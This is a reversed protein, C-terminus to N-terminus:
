TTSSARRTKRGNIKTRYNKVLLDEDWGLYFNWDPHLVVIPLKKRKAAMEYYNPKKPFNRPKVNKRHSKRINCSHCAAVINDWATKGGHFRPVVHDLTLDDSDIKKLCYQCRSQDRLLVNQRSFKIHREKNIWRRSQMVAPVNLEISPSRIIWHEYEHLVDVRDKWMLCVADQWTITSLPVVSLPQGDSNLFLVDGM